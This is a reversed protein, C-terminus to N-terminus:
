AEATGRATGREQDFLRVAAKQLGSALHMYPSSPPRRANALGKALAVDVAEPELTAVLRALVGGSPAEDIASKFGLAV